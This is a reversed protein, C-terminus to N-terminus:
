SFYVGVHHDQIALMGFIRKVNEPSIGVGTDTVIVELKDQSYTADVCIEGADCFKCANTVINYFM